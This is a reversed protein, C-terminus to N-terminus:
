CYPDNLLAVSFTGFFSEEAPGTMYLPTSRGEWEITLEGGPLEVQAKSDVKGAVYAAAFSACAGTGCALTAGAGREWIRAILRDRSVVQVFEVNTRTPHFRPHKEIASGLAELPIEKAANVLIVAHPNGMSVSRFHFSQGAGLAQFEILEEKEAVEPIGMMVRVQNGQLTVQQLGALTEISYHDRGNWHRNLYLAVARIGNGCMEAVSGDSNLIEMRVEAISPSHPSVLRLIQDAGIGFRRDCLKAALEASMKKPVVGRTDRIGGSIEDIIIFDNGLGHMKTFTLTNM